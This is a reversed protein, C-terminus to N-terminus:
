QWPMWWVGKERKIQDLFLCHKMGRHPLQYSVAGKNQVLFCVIGSEIMDTISFKNRLRAVARTLTSSKSLVTTEVLCVRPHGLFPAHECARRMGRLIIPM